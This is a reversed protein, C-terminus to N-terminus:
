SVEKQRAAARRHLSSYPWDEARDCLEWTVPMEECARCAADRGGEPIRAHAPAVLRIAGASHARLSASLRTLRHCIDDAERTGLVFYLGNPLICAAHTEMPAQAREAAFASRVLAIHDTIATSQPDEHLLACRHLRTTPATDLM